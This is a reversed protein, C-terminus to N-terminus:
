PLVRFDRLHLLSRRGIRARVYRATVPSFSAKWSWFVKTRRSVERWTKQDNSVELILPVAREPLDRRNVVRIASFQTPRGLDLEFWPSADEFTHFFYAKDKECREPSPCNIDYASSVAWPKGRGLDNQQESWDRYWMAAAAVAAISLLLGGVRVLRQLWVRDVLAQASELKRALARATKRLARAEQRTEDASRGVIEFDRQLLARVVLDRTSVDRACALLVGDRHESVLERREDSSPPRDWRWVSEDRGPEALTAYRQSRSCLRLSWAISEAFLHSALHNADGSSFRASPELVREGVEAALSAQRFYEAAGPAMAAAAQEASRMARARWFWEWIKWRPENNL